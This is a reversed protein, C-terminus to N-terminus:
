NCDLLTMLHVAYQSIIGVWELFFFSCKPPSLGLLIDFDREAEKQVERRFDPVDSEVPSRGKGPLLWVLRMPGNVGGGESWFLNQSLSANTTKTKKKVRAARLLGALRTKSLIRTSSYIIELNYNRQEGTPEVAKRRWRGLFCPILTRILFARHATVNLKNASFDMNMAWKGGYMKEALRNESHRIWVFFHCAHSSIGSLSAKNERVPM